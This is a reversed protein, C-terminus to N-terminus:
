LVSKVSDYDVLLFDTYLEVIVIVQKQKWPSEQEDKCISCYPQLHNLAFDWVIIADGNYRENSSLDHLVSVNHTYYQTTLTSLANGEKLSPPHLVRLFVPYIFLHSFEPLSSNTNM